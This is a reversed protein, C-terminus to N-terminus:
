LKGKAMDAGFMEKGLQLALMMAQPHPEQRFLDVMRGEVRDKGSFVEDQRPGLFPKKGSRSNILWRTSAMAGDRDHSIVMLNEDRDAWDSIREPRKAREAKYSADDKANLSGVWVECTFSYAEAKMLRLLVCILQRYAMQERENEWPTIITRQGEPVALTWMPYFEGHKAHIKEAAQAAMEHFPALGTYPVRIAPLFSPRM